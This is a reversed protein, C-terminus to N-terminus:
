EHLSFRIRGYSPDIDQESRPERADFVAAALNLGQGADFVYKDDFFNLQVSELVDVSSKELLINLRYGSYALMLIFLLISCASGM